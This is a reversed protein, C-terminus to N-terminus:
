TCLGVPFCPQNGKGKLTRYLEQVLDIPETKLYSKLMEPFLPIFLGKARIFLCTIQKGLVSKWVVKLM